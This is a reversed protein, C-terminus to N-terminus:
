WRVFNTVEVADGLAYISPDSTCFYEDVLIGGTKGIKLGAEVALKNEPRVGIALVVLDADVKKGSKLVVAQLKEQGVFAVVPENLFLDVGKARMKKHIYAAMEKDLPALVQDQAEVVTVDLGFHKFNEAVELAM